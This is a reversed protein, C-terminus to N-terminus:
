SLVRIKFIVTLKRCRFKVAISEEFFSVRDLNIDSKYNIYDIKLQKSAFIRDFNVSLNKNKPM